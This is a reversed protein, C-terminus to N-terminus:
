KERFKKHCGGCTKAAKGFQAKLQQEDGSAAIEGLKRAESQFVQFKEKFEPWNEWIEDKAETDFGSDEPFGPLINLEAAGALGRANARFADADFPVKGKAMAGMPKVYWKYITMASQRFDIAGQESAYLPTHAAVLTLALIGFVIKNM